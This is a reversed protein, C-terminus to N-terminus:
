SAPWAMPVAVGRDVGEIVFSDGLAHDDCRGLYGLRFVGLGVLGLGRLGLLVGLGLACLRCSRQPQLWSPWPWRTSAAVPSVEPAAMTAVTRAPVAAIAAPVMALRLREYVGRRVHCSGRLGRTGAGNLLAVASSGEPPPTKWIRGCPICSITKQRAWGAHAPTRCHPGDIDCRRSFGTM